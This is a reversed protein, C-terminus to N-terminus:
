VGSLGLRDNWNGHAYTRLHEFQKVIALNNKIEQCQHIEQTQIPSKFVLERVIEVQKINIGGKHKAKYQALLNAQRYAVTKYSAHIQM